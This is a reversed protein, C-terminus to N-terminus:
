GKRKRRKPNSLQALKDNVEVLAERLRLVEQQERVLDGMLEETYKVARACLLVQNAITARFEDATVPANMQQHMDEKLLNSM